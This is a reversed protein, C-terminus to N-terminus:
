NKKKIAKRKGKEVPTEIEDTKEEEITSTKAALKYGAAIYEEVRSSDVFTKGGLKNIFEVKM